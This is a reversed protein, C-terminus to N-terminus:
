PGLPTRLSPANGQPRPGGIRGLGQARSGAGLRQTYLECASPDVEKKGSSKADFRVAGHFARFADSSKSKLTTSGQDRSVRCGSSRGRFDFKKSLRSSTSGLNHGKGHVQRWFARPQTGRADGEESRRSIVARAGECNGPPPPHPNPNHSKATFNVGWPVNMSEQLDGVTPDESMYSSKHPGM